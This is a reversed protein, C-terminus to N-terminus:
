NFRVKGSTSTVVRVREVQCDLDNEILEIEISVIAGSVASSSDCFTCPLRSSVGYAHVERTLSEPPVAFKTYRPIRTVGKSSPELVITMLCVSGYTADFKLKLNVAVRQTLEWMRWAHWWFRQCTVCSNSSVMRAASWSRGGTKLFPTM